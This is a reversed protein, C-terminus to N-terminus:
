DVWREVPGTITSDVHIPIGPILSVTTGTVTVTVTTPSRTVSVDVTQLTGNGMEDAAHYGAQTGASASSHYLRAENYSVQAIGATLQNGYLWISIQTITFFIVLLAPLIISAEVAAAGREDRLLTRLRSSRPANTTTRTMTM